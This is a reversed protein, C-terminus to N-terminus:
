FQLFKRMEDILFDTITNSGREVHGDIWEHINKNASLKGFENKLYSRVDKPATNMENWISERNELVYVIDEFDKSTRGDGKGRDRFAELKTAIFYPATLIKVALQNDIRFQVAEKYGESYWKTSFGITDDETPMVDVIIGDIKYRCVIGSDVDQVFGMGRLQEELKTRSRYNLIEIIVDVDDTPRSEITPQEAYLSVVAGGVFVVDDKLIGLANYVAKIRTLNINYNM